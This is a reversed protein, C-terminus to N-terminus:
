HFIVLRFTEKEHFSVDIKQYDEKQRESQSAALQDTVNEFGTDPCAYNENHTDYCDYDPQNGLCEASARSLPKQFSRLHSIFIM